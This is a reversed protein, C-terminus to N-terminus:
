SQLHKVLFLKEQSSPGARKKNKQGKHPATPRYRAPNQNPTPTPQSAQPTLDRTVPARWCLAHPTCPSFPTTRTQRVRGSSLRCLRASALARPKLIAASRASNMRNKTKTKGPRREAQFEFPPMKCNNGVLGSINFCPHASCSVHPLLTRRRRHHSTTPLQLQYTLNPNLNVNTQNMPPRRAGQLTTSTM